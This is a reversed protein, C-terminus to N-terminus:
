SGGRAILSLAYGIMWAVGGIFLLIILYCGAWATSLLGRAGRTVLLHIPLMVLPGPCFLLMLRYVSSRPRDLALQDYDYWWLILMLLLVASVGLLRQSIESNVPLYGLTIGSVSFLVFMWLLLHRQKRRFISVSERLSDPNSQSTHYPNTQENM